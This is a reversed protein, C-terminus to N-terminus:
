IAAKLENLQGETLLKNVDLLLVLREDVEVLGEIYEVDIFGGVTPKERIENNDVAHTDSVADVVIGIVSQEEGSSINLLIVVTTPGYPIPELGFKERLDIIPVINGRLHLVGKVYNAIGPITTINSWERIENVMLINVGFEENNLSFTLIQETNSQMWNSHNTDMNM